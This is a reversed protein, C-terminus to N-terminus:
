FLWFLTRVKLVEEGPYLCVTKLSVARMSLDGSECKVTAVLHKTLTSPRFRSKQLTSYGAIFTLCYKVDKM